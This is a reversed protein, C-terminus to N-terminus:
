LWVIEDKHEGLFEALEYENVMIAMSYKKPNLQCLYLCGPMFHGVRKIEYFIEYHIGGIRFHLIRASEAEDMHGIEGRKLKEIIEVMELYNQKSEAGSAGVMHKMGVSAEKEIM